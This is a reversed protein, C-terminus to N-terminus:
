VMTVLAKILAAKTATAAAPIDLLELEDSVVEAGEELEELEELEEFDELEEM